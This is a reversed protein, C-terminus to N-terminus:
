LLNMLTEARVIDAKSAYRHELLYQEDILLRYMKNLEDAPKGVLAVDTEFFDAIRKALQRSTLRKTKRTM